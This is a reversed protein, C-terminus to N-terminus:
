KNALRKSLNVAEGVNSVRGNLIYGSLMDIRDVTMNEEGLYVGYNTSLNISMEKQKQELEKLKMSTEAIKKKIKDIKRMDRETIEECIDEKTNKEFEDLVDNKRRAIDEISDELEKIDEDYEHLGYREENKDKKIKKKIKAIKDKNKRIANRKPLMDEYAERNRVKAYNYGLMYIFGFVIIMLIILLVRGIKKAGALWAIFSPFVFIGIIFTLVLVLLQKLGRTYYLSYMFGNDMFKPVGKQKFYTKIEEKINKNEIVLDATEEKIREAVKKDKEKDRDNQVQKLRDKSKDLEKDFNSVVEERRKKVTSEINSAMQKEEAALDKEYRRKDDMMSAIEARVKDRAEILGKVNMLDDVDGYLINKGEM